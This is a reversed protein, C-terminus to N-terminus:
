MHAFALWTSTGLLADVKEILEDLDIPKYLFGSCCAFQESVLHYGSMLLVPINKLHIQQALQECLIIGNEEGPLIYDLLLLDPKFKLMESLLNRGDTLTKIEYQFYSLTEKLVELHQENDDVILIRKARM